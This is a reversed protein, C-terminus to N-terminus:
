KTIRIRLSEEIDKYAAMEAANLQIQLNVELVDAKKLELLIEASISVYYIKKNDQQRIKHLLIYFSYYGYLQLLYYLWM